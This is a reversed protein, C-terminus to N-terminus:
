EASRSTKCNRWSSCCGGWTKRSRDAGGRGIRHRSPHRVPPSTPRHLPRLYRRYMGKDTTALVNVKMQDFALNKSLGRIRYRRHGLQMTVEDGSVDADIEQPAPPLPRPPLSRPRCPRCPEAPQRRSMTMTTWTTRKMKWTRGNTMTTGRRDSEDAETEGARHGAASGSRGTVSM